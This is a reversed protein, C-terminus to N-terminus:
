LLGATLAQDAVIDTSSITTSTLAIALRTCGAQAQAQPQPAITDLSGICTSPSAEITHHSPLMSCITIRSATSESAAPAAHIKGVGVTAVTWNPWRPHNVYISSM